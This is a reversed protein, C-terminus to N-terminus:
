ITKMDQSNHIFSCYVNPQLYRKSVAVKGESSYRSMPTSSWITTKNKINSSGGYQGEYHLCCNVNRGITCSPQRKEVDKDASIIEQRKSFLWELGNPSGRHTLQNLIRCCLPLGPNSRQTPFIGQLLSCSGVRGVRVQFIGHVAYDIPDCLTPHSQAVKMKLKMTVATLHYRMTIKVQM